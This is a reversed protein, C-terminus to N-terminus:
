GSRRGRKCRPRYLVDTADLLALEVLHQPGPPETRTEVCDLVIRTLADILRRSARRLLPSRCGQALVGLGAEDLMDAAVLLADRHTLYRGQVLLQKLQRLQTNDM